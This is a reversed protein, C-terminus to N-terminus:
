NSVSEFADVIARMREYKEICLPFGAYMEKFEDESYAYVMAIYNTADIEKSPYQRRLLVQMADDLGDSSWETFGFERYDTSYNPITTTSPTGDLNAYFLRGHYTGTGTASSRSVLYFEELEEPYLNQIDSSISTAIVRGAWYAKEEETMDEIRYLEGAVVGMMTTYAYDTKGYSYLGFSANWGYDTTYLTDVLLFSLPRYEGKKPLKPIVKDRLLEGAMIMANTDSSLVMKANSLQTSIGYGLVFREYHIIPNGYADEGRYESGLTDNVFVPMGTEQYIQYALQNFRGPKDQIEFYNTGAASPTLEDEEACGSWLAVFLLVIYIKNMITM